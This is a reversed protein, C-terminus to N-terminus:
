LLYGTIELEQIIKEIHDLVSAQVKEKFRCTWEPGTIQKLEEFFEIKEAVTQVKSLLRKSIMCAEGRVNMTNGVIAMTNKDLVRCYLFKNHGDTVVDGFKFEGVMPFLDCDNVILNVDEHGRIEVLYHWKNCLHNKNDDTIIKVVRVVCGDYAHGDKHFVVQEGQKYRM